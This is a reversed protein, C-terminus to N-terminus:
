ASIEPAGYFLPLTTATACGECAEHFAHELARDTRYLEYFWVVKGEAVRYRLRALIKYAVENQFVPITLMFITPVKVKDHTETFSVNAEGSALTIAQAVASSVNVQLGRSLEMMKQPTAIEGGLTKVIRQIEAEADNDIDWTYPGPMIDIIHDEIFCAFEAQTFVKGSAATWAKWERSLPFDYRARHKCFQAEGIPTEEHYDFVAQISLSTTNAHAFLASNTDRFRNVIDKFSDISEIMSTGAKREPRERYEDFYKKLSVISKGSPVLAVPASMGDLELTRVEVDSHQNLWALLEKLDGDKEM